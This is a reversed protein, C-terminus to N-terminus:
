GLCVPLRSLSVMPGNSSEMSLRHLIKVLGRIGILKRSRMLHENSEYLTCWLFPLPHCWAAAEPFLGAIPPSPWPPGHSLGRWLAPGRNLRLQVWHVFARPHRFPANVSQRSWDIWRDKRKRRRKCGSQTMVPVENLAKPDIVQNVM